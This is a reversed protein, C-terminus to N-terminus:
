ATNLSSKQQQILINLDIHIISYCIFNNKNTIDVKFESQQERTLQTDFIYLYLCSSAITYFIPIM